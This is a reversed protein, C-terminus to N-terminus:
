TGEYTNSKGRTKIREALYSVAESATKEFLFPFLAHIIAAMGALVLVLGFRLAFEAHQWYSEGVSSLHQRTRKLM